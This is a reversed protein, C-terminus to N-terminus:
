TDILGKTQRSTGNTLWASRGTAIIARKTKRTTSRSCMTDRALKYAAEHLLFTIEATPVLYVGALASRFHTAARVAVALRLECVPSDDLHVIMTDFAM